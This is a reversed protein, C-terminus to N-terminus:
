ADHRPPSQYATFQPIWRPVHQCFHEYAKGYRQLLLPEEFQTVQIHALLAFVISMILIGTSSFMIAEGFMTSILACVVPNRVYRYPGDVVLEKPPDFEVFPGKGKTTLVYSAVMYALLSLGFWAAGIGRGIPGIERHISPVFVDLWSFAFPIVGLVMGLFFLTYITMRLSLPIKQLVPAAPNHAPDHRATSADM